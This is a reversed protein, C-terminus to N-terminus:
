RVGRVKFTRDTTQGASTAIKIHRFGGLPITWIFGGTSAASIVKNNGGDANDTVYLDHYNGAADPVKISVQASDITPVYVQLTEYHRGLDVAASLDDDESVDILADQWNGVIM